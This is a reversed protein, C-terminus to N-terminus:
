WNTDDVFFARGESKALGYALWLGLLTNGLGADATEMVYTLSKECVKVEEEEDEEGDEKEDGKEENQADLKQSVRGGGKVVSDWLEMGNESGKTQWGMGKVGPLLGNEEAERVDMFNRDIHYYSFHGHGKGPGFKMEAVHHAIEDSQQCIDAYEQPRLPFRRDPPISVTWRLRGRRDTVVVPTPFDPLASDGVIEYERGDQSMFSVHPSHDLRIRSMVFWMIVGVGSLWALLRMSSIWHRNSPPKQGHQNILSPLRPSPPPERFLHQLGHKPSSVSLPTHPSRRIYKSPPQRSSIIM